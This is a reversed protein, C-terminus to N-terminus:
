SKGNLVEIFNVGKLILIRYRRRDSETSRIKRQRFSQRLLLKPVSLKDCYWTNEQIFSTQESEGIPLKQVFIYIIDQM